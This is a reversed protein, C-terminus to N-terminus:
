VMGGRLLKRMLGKIGESLRDAIPTLVASLALSILVSAAVVPLFWAFRGAMQPVRETLVPYLVHDPLWSLLYAAFTLSSIRALLRRGRETVRSYDLSRLLRFLLTANVTCGLSGWDNWDGTQLPVGYNRRIAYLGSLLGFALFWFLLRRTGTRRSGGAPAADYRQLYAGICYYTIPYIGKWWVPLLHHGAIDMVSPLITLLLLVSLLARHGERGPLANWLVNLFPILLSLGLYMEVYWSYHQFGFIAELSGWGGLWEGLYFTRFLLVLVSVLLYICYVGIRKGYFHLLGERTVPIEGRSELFGTLLLFLPVCTLCFSVLVTMLYMAAGRVPEAYYWSNLFFHVSPVLLFATTRIVDLSVEREKPESPNKKM